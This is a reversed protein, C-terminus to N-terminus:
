LRAGGGHKEWIKQWEISRWPASVLFHESEAKGSADGAAFASYGGHEAFEAEGNEIGVGEGVFEDFGALGGVVFDEAFKTGGDEGRIAANVACFEADDNEVIAGAEVAEVGDDMGADGFDDQTLEVIPLALAHAISGKNFGGEEDFGANVLIQITKDDGPALRLLLEVAEEGAAERFGFGAAADGGLEGDLLFESEGGILDVAGTGEVFGAM